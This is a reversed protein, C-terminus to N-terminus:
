KSRRADLASLPRSLVEAPLNALANGSREIGDRIASAARHLESSLQELAIGDLEDLRDIAILMCQQLAALNFLDNALSGLSQGCAENCADAIRAVASM